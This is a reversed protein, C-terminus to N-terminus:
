RAEFRVADACALKMTTNAAIFTTHIFRLKPLAHAFQREASPLEGVEERLASM